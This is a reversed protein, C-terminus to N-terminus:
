PMKEVKVNIVGKSKSAIKKFAVVDLDIVRDPFIKKDPGYDNVKVVVSKNNDLNTVKLFSKRPYDVSAAYLGGICKYWSAKGLLPKEELVALKVYPLTLKLRYTKKEKNIVANNVASWKNSYPNYFYVARASDNETAYKLDLIYPKTFNKTGIEVEYLNSIFNKTSPLLSEDRGLDNLIVSIGEPNKKTFNPLLTLVINKDSSKVTYGKKITKEDLVISISEEAMLGKFPVFFSILILGFIIKYSSNKNVISNM